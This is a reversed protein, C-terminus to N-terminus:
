QQDTDSKIALFSPTAKLGISLSKEACKWVRTERVCTEQVCMRTERVCCDGPRPPKGSACAPRGPTPRPCPDTGSPFAPRGSVRTERVRTECPCVAKVAADFAAEDPYLKGQGIDRRQPKYVKPPLSPLPPPESSACRSLLLEGHSSALLVSGVVFVGCSPTDCECLIPPTSFLFTRPPSSHRVDPSLFKVSNTSAWPLCRM